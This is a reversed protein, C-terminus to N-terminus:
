ALAGTMGTVGVIRCNSPREGDRVLVAESTRTRPSMTTTWLRDSAPIKRRSTSDVPASRTRRVPPRAVEDQIISTPRRGAAAQASYTDDLRSRVQSEQTQITKTPPPNTPPCTAQHHAQQFRRSDYHKRTLQTAHYRETNLRKIASIKKQLWLCRRHANRYDGETPFGKISGSRVKSDGPTWGHSLGNEDAGALRDRADEGGTREGRV